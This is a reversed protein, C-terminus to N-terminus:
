SFSIVNITIVADCYRGDADTVRYPITDTGITEGATYTFVGNEDVSATGHSVGTTDITYVVPQKAHYLDLSYDICYVSIASSIPPSLTFDKAGPAKGEPEPQYLKRLFTVYSDQDDEIGVAVFISEGDCDGNTDLAQVTFFDYGVFDQNPTYTFAFPSTSTSDPTITGYRPKPCIIAQTVETTVSDITIVLDAANFQLVGNKAISFQENKVYPTHLTVSNSTYTHLVGQNDTVTGTIQFTGPQHSFAFFHYQKNSVLSDGTTWTVKSSLPGSVTKTGSNIIDDRLYLLTEVPLQISVDVNNFTEGITNVLEIEIHLLNHLPSVQQQIAIGSVTAIFTRSYLLLCVIVIIKKINKM